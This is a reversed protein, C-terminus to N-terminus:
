WKYNMALGYTRPETWNAVIFAGGLDFGSAYKKVNTANRVWLSIDTQGRTDMPVGALLLRANVITTSPVTSTETSNGIAVNTGTATRQASYNYAKSTYRADIIGRLTGIPTRALRGDLSLTLSHRPAYVPMTNDAANILAGFQNFQMYEKYEAELYGYGGQLKWGDAVVLAGEVEFGQYEAKGANVMTPTTSGAPLQSVQFNTVNTRFLAANVQARGGWLQSKFGVEYSTSKEPEFPTLALTATSAQTPFGGSKFGKAVRGYINLDANVKYNLALVPTNASFDATASGPNIIYSVGASGPASFNANTRTKWVSGGKKESTHRFGATATWADTLKYDIQGFVAKAETTVHSMQQNYGFASAGFLATPPLLTLFAGQDNSYSAGNDKYWYLGAVYNIRETNGIWQLEHSYSSFDTKLASEYINLPTGDLDKDDDLRMRRKAGIYKLSNRDDIAYTATVAHGEVDLKQYYNRGPDGAVSSPYSNLGGHAYPTIFSAVGPLLNFSRAQALSALAPAAFFAQPVGNFGQQFLSYASLPNGAITPYLAGYGATSRLSTATPTESVHTKDYAYNVKLKPTFEFAAGLHGATRGRGGWPKGNPNSIWGDQNEDRVAFNISMIGMKPLDMAIKAVRRERNGLEIGVNGGFEGSPKRTVFNVAGGETNRGFLTGQPGRLIEIREMDLLEFFAGQNKGVFVGDVYLGISPDAWIAPQGVGIGRIFIAGGTTQAPVNTFHVNPAIGALTAAGEIGRTELQSSTIATISIPVDQLREARKQATVIIEEVKDEARTAGTYALALAAPLLRVALAKRRQHM